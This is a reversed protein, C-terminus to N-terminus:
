FLPGVAVSLLLPWLLSWVSSTFGYQTVGWVGHQGLNRAIALHIYADDFAYIFKGDNQGLSLYLIAAVAGWLIATAVLAAAARLAVPYPQSALRHRNCLDPEAAAADARLAGHIIGRGVADAAVAAVIGILYVRVAYCGM